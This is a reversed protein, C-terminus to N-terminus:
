IKSFQNSIIDNGMAEVLSDLEKQHRRIANATSASISRIIEDQKNRAAEVIFDNGTRQMVEDAYPVNASIDYVNEAKKTARISRELRGTNNKFRHNAKASNAIINAVQESSSAMGESVIENFRDSLVKFKGLASNKYSFTQSYDIRNVGRPYQVDAYEFADILQTHCDNYFPVYLGKNWGPYSKIRDIAAPDYRGPVEYSKYTRKHTGANPTGREKGQWPMGTQGIGVNRKTDHVWVHGFAGSFGIAPSRYVRLYKSM